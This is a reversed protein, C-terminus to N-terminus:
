MGILEALDIRDDPLFVLLYIHFICFLVVIYESDLLTLLVNSYTGWWYWVLQIDLFIQM